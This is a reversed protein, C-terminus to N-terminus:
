RNKVFKELWNELMKKGQPTLISEPHFQVGRVNYHCHRLSMVEGQQDVSTVELAAPVERSVTWSHYRAVRIPTQLGDFIGDPRIVEIQADVGHHVNELNVLTAGFAEAIAQQGLCIGLIPREAALTEIIEIINGAQSPVGPGPSIVIGDCARADNISVDDNRVVQVICGLDELYHVLNFTFSDYNDIVLIKM